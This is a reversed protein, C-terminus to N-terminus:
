GDGREMLASRPAEGGQWPLLIRLSSPLRAPLLTAAPNTLQEQHGKNGAPKHRPHMLAARGSSDYRRQQEAGRQTEM